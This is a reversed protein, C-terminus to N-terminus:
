CQRGCWQMAFKPEWYFHPPPCISTNGEDDLKLSCFYVFLLIQKQAVAIATLLSFFKLLRRAQEVSQVRGKFYILQPLTLIGWCDTWLLLIIYCQALYLSSINNLWVADDDRQRSKGTFFRGIFLCKLYNSLLRFADQM